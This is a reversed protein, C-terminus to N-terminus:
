ETDNDTEAALVRDRVKEAEAFTEFRGYSVGNIKVTYPKVRYIGFSKRGRLNKATDRVEAGKKVLERFLKNRLKMATNINATGLRVHTRRNNEYVITVYSGKMFYLFSEKGYKKINPIQTM